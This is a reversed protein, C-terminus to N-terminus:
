EDTSRWVKRNAQNMMDAMEIRWPTLKLLGFEPATADAFITGYDFGLPPPASRFLDWVHQKVTLDDEWESLCDAYVPKAVDAIYALSVYPNHAIHKAKLSHRRGGVWGTGGEWIPHLIRSRLRNQTDLTAVSCWVTKHVREIFEQEIESFASIDM